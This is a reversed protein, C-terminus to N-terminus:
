SLGQREEPVDAEELREGDAIRYFRPTKPPQKCSICFRKAGFLVINYRGDHLLRQDEITAACGIL